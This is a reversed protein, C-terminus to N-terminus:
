DTRDRAAHGACCYHDAGERSSESEPFYIGCRVCKVMSEARRAAPAHAGQFRRSGSRRLIWFVTLLLGILLLYKM